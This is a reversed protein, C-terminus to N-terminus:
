IRFKDQSAAVEKVAKIVYQAEDSSLIRLDGSQCLRGKTSESFKTHMNRLPIVQM